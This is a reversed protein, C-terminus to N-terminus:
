RLVRVVRAFRPECSALCWGCVWGVAVTVDWCPACVLQRGAARCDRCLTVVVAWAPNLCPADDDADTTECTVTPEFDLHEIATLSMMEDPTTVPDPAVITATAASADGLQVGHHFTEERVGKWKRDGKGEVELRSDETLQYRLAGHTRLSDETLPATM